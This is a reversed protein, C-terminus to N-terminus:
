IQTGDPSWEPAMVGGRLRTMVYVGGSEVDLIHLQAGRDVVTVAPPPGPPADGAPVAALYALLKGDPSWRPMTDQNTGHTLAQSEGSALDTIWINARYRNEDADMWTRVWAVRTGDPSIQPDDAMHFSFLDHPSLRRKTSM